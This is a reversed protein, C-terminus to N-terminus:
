VHKSLLENGSERILEGQRGKRRQALYESKTAAQSRQTLSVTFSVNKERPAGDVFQLSLRFFLRDDFVEFGSAQAVLNAFAGHQFGNM